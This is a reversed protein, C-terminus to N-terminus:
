IPMEPCSEKLGFEDLSSEDLSSEDLNAAIPVPRASVRNAALGRGVSEASKLTWRAISKKKDTMIKLRIM